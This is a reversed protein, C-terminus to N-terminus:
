PDIPKPDSQDPKIAPQKPKLWPFLDYFSDFDKSLKIGIGQKFPLENRTFYSTNTRNFGYFNFFPTFRYGMEVDGVLVNSVATNLDSNTGYGFTSEFYFKNWRKSIGVDWQSATNATAAQYNFDVDVFKVMNSVLTGVSSTLLGIGNIGENTENNATKTSAFTGFLLLSISQNLLEMENKKDIYSFVQDTVSQESNPLRIDFKIVPEQMTGSLTIVDQVTVYNDSINSGMLTALNARLNYVANIDFRADKINGPFNLTSGQEIVFTKGIIQMLSLSFFGSTFQYDGLVTPEQNGQMSVKLDGHGEATVNAGLQQFDMPLHLKMGPTIAVNLQLNMDSKGSQTAAAPRVAQPLHRQNPNIFVVFENENIVKKNSIPVYIESGELATANAVINLKDVTGRVTGHVSGFLEGYYNDGDTVKDLLTIGDTHLSLDLMLNNSVYGLTGNVQARNEKLDEITFNDLMLTSNRIALTDDFRYTVGTPVLKLRGDAIAMDGNIQPDNISGEVRLRGSVLGDMNSAVQDLLPGLTRLSIRDLSLDFDIDGGKEQMSASGNLTLPHHHTDNAAYDSQLDLYLRGEDTKYNSRIDLRGAPQGNIVCNDVALNADIYPRQTVGRMELMGDITGDVTLTSNQILASFLQGLSFDEFTARVYDEEQGTPTSSNKGLGTVHATVAMSQGLGYVKLEEVLLRDRNALIGKPCVLNWREGKIYCSPRTVMIKNDSESSNLFLGIDGENYSTRADDDWRLELTSINSGMTASLQMNELLPNDGTAINSTKLDFQYNEGLRRSDFGIDHLAVNNFALMESHFVLKLGEGYAYNIHLNTGSDISVEPMFRQFTGEKDNWTINLNFNDEMLPTWYNSDAAEKFPNFYVPVYQDCFDRVVLPLDRYRFYGQMSAVLWDSELTLRKFLNRQSANMELRSLDLTRDGITGRTDLLSVSGTMNEISDGQLDAVLHTSVIIDSDGELLGLRTLHADTLVLDASYKKEAMNATATMDIDILSDRLAIDASLVQGSLEASLTTRNLNHGRFQTNYLRGELSAGMEQPDFGTGQFSLHFGTRSVWENPLLSRIGLVRSDLDGLYTYNRSATDYMIHAYGELDGIHSNINFFTECDHLGGRLSGEMTVEHMQKAAAPLAFKVSEPLRVTALDAYTTRLRHLVADITTSEIQPLGSITADLLLNSKDGFSAVVNQAHLDSIPGYFHGQVAIKANLGWLMPAWYAADCLNVETGPKLVVDHQVTNLYDDMEEWGHYLMEVDMFVRSDATQLDMNTVHITRPSVEVDMSLDEVRMGSAETTSLSVVRCTVSDADVRVHRIHGTTGLYRMHSIDVGHDYHPMGAPEPLDQIYDINRMRLEGVEVIFHAGTYQPPTDTAYYDIIFDLNTGMRGDARRLSEFHYRGNRLFVRDFNLGDSHFPFKKFRCAIRDGYYITDNTPSILEIKDLVIHSFPSFHLAGIRVKGGWEKSFYSGVAAGLYSQTVSGNLLAVLVYLGLLLGVVVRKVILLGKKM